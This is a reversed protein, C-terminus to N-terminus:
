LNEYKELWKRIAIYTADDDVIPAKAFNRRFNDDSVPVWKVAMVEGDDFKFDEPKDTWDVLYVMNIINKNRRFAVLTLDDATLKVGIEEFAERIAAEVFSEGLNVHGGASVDWKGPFNELKESRQQWLLEMQGDQGKRYLYVVSGGVIEEDSIKPNNKEASRWKGEVPEGNDYFLQWKENHHM